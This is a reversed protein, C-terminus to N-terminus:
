YSSETGPQAGPPLAEYKSACKAQVQQAEFVRAPTYRGTVIAQANDVLTDPLPDRGLYVVDLRNNGQHLQFSVRGADRRLSGPVVDGAVRLRLDYAADGRAFLEPITVYYTKTEQVGSYALWALVGLILAAGAIFKLKQGNVAM